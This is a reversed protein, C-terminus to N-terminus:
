AALARTLKAAVREPHSLDAWVLRVIAYGLARLEDERRKEAALATFGKAGACKKLGDFELIVRGAVLFDVRAIFGGNGDCITVQSRWEHGLDHLLLRTRTEGPSESKPDALAILNEGLAKRHSPVLTAVADRVDSLTCKKQRLAADLPVLAAELGSRLLVQVVAHEISVARAGDIKVHPLSGPQTRLGASLRVRGVKAQVDVVDLRVGHLPLRRLALAAQHTAVDEGRTRLIALVRLRLVEEHDADTWTSALVYAGRRVRVIEGARVLSRLEADDVDVAHAEAATFVDHQVSAITLLRPNM